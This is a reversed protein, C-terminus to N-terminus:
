DELLEPNDHINGIIEGQLATPFWTRNGQPNILIYRAEAKSWSVEFVHCGIRLYDRKFVRKGNKDKLGTYEGVTAPDVTHPTNRCLMSEKGQRNEIIYTNGCEEYFYGEVWQGNDIRKGRFLIERM